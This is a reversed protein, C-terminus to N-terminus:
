CKTKLDKNADTPMTEELLNNRIFLLQGLRLSGYSKRLWM